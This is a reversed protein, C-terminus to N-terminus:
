YIVDNEFDIEIGESFDSFFDAEDKIAKLKEILIDEEWISKNRKREEDYAFFLAIKDTTKLEELFDYASHVIADYQYKQSLVSIDVILSISQFYAEMAASALKVNNILNARKSLAIAFRKFSGANDYEFLPEAYVNIKAKLAEKVDNTKCILYWVRDESDAFLMDEKISNLQSILSSLNEAKLESFGSQIVELSGVQLEIIFRIFRKPDELGYKEVYPRIDEYEEKSLVTKFPITGYSIVHDDQKKLLSKVTALKKPTINTLENKLIESAKNVIERNMIKPM